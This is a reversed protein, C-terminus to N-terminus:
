CISFLEKRNFENPHCQNVFNYLNRTYLEVGSNNCLQQAIRCKMQVSYQTNVGWTLDRDM